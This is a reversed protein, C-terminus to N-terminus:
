KREEPSSSVGGGWEPTKTVQGSIGTVAERGGQEKKIMREKRKKKFRTQM